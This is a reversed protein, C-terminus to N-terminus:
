KSYWIMETGTSPDRRMLPVVCLRSSGGQTTRLLTFVKTRLNRLRYIRGFILYRSTDKEVRNPHRYPPCQSVSKTRLLDRDLITRIILTQLVSTKKPNVNARFNNDEFIDRDLNNRVCGWYSLGGKAFM